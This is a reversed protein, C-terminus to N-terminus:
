RPRALLAIQQAEHSTLGDGTVNVNVVTSGSAWFFEVERASASTRGFYYSHSSHAIGGNVAPAPHSDSFSRTFVHERLLQEAQRPSALRWWTDTVIVPGPHAKAFAASADERSGQEYASTLIWAEYRGGRVLATCWRPLPPFTGTSGCVTGVGSSNVRTMGPIQAIATDSAAVGVAHGGGWLHVTLVVAAAAAVVAFGVQVRRRRMRRKAEAILLDLGVRPRPFHADM